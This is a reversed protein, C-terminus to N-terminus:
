KCLVNLKWEGVPLLCIIESYNQRSNSVFSSVGVFNLRSLVNQYKFSHRPRVLLEASFWLEDPWVPFVVKEAYMKGVM